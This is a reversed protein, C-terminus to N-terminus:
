IKIENSMLKPLLTDRLKTLTRIQSQNNKMKEFYPLVLNHFLFVNKKDGSVYQQKVVVQSINQQAAGCALNIFEDQMLKTWLYLNIMDLNCYDFTRTITRKGEIQVQAIKACTSNTNQFLITRFICIVKEIERENFINSRIGIISM